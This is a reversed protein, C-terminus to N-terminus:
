LRLKKVIEGMNLLNFLFFAIQQILFIRQIQQIQTIIWFFFIM